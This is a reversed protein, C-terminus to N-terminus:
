FFNSSQYRFVKKTLSFDEVLKSRVSFNAVTRLFEDDNSAGARIGHTSAIMQDRLLRLKQLRKLDIAVVPAIDRKMDLITLYKKERCPCLNM